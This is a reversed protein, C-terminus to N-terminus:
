LPCRGSVTIEATPGDQPDVLVINVLPGGELAISASGARFAQALVYRDGEIQGNASRTTRDLYGDIEYTVPGLSQTGNGISLGGCGHLTGLHKLSPRNGFWTM